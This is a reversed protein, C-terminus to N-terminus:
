ELGGTAGCRIPRSIKPAPSVGASCLMTRWQPAPTEGANRRRQLGNAARMVGWLFAAQGAPLDFDLARQIDVM